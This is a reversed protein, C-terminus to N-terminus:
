TGAGSDGHCALAPISCCYSYSNSPVCSNKLVGDFSVDLTHLASPTQERLCESKLPYKRAAFYVRGCIFYRLNRQRTKRRITQSVAISLVVPRAAWIAYKSRKAMAGPDNNRHCRSPRKPVSGVLNCRINSRKFLKTGGSGFTCSMRSEAIALTTTVPELPRSAFAPIM